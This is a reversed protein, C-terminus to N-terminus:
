FGYLFDAFCSYEFLMKYISVLISFWVFVQTQSSELEHGSVPSFIVILFEM